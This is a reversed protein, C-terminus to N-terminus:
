HIIYKLMWRCKQETNVWFPRERETKYLGYFSKQECINMFNNIGLHGSVLLLVRSIECFNCENQDDCRLIRTSCTYDYKNTHTHQKLTFVFTTKKRFAIKMSILM